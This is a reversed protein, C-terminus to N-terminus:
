LSEASLFKMKILDLWQGLDGWAMTDWRQIMERKFKEGRERKKKRERELINEAPKQCFSDLNRMESLSPTSSPIRCPLFPLDFKKHKLEWGCMCMWHKQWYEIFEIHLSPWHISGSTCVTSLRQGKFGQFYIEEKKKTVLYIFSQCVPEMEIEGKVNFCTSLKISETLVHPFLNFGVTILHFPLRRSWYTTEILYDWTKFFTKQAGTDKKLDSSGADAAAPPWWCGFSSIFDGDSKQKKGAQGHYEGQEM